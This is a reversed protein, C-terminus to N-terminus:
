AGLGMEVRQAHLRAKARRALEDALQTDTFRALAEQDGAIVELARARNAIRRLHGREVLAEVLRSVGSISKLGLHDATERFSPTRGQAQEDRIYALLAAQMATLEM